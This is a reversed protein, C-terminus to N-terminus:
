GAPGKLGAAPEGGLDHRERFRNRLEALIKATGEAGANELNTEVLNYHMGILGRLKRFADANKRACVSDDGRVVREIVGPDLLKIGLITSYRAIEEDTQELARGYWRKGEGETSM